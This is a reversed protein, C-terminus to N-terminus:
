MNAIKLHTLMSKTKYMTAGMKTTLMCQQVRHRRLQVRIPHWLTEKHFVMGISM